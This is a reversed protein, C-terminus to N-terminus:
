EPNSRHGYFGHVNSNDAVVLQFREGVSEWFPPAQRQGVALGDAANQPAQGYRWLFPHFQDKKHVSAHGTRFGTQDVAVGQHEKGGYCASSRRRLVHAADSGPSTPSWTATTPRSTDATFSRRGGSRMRCSWSKSLRPFIRRQWRRCCIKSSKASTILRKERPIETPLIDVAMIVPGDGAVGDVVSQQEPDYVYVLNGPDTTRVTCQVSGNPDCSIDGIVKLRQRRGTTWMRRCDELTLLRPYRDDWYVCNVWVGLRELHRGFVAAYRQKGHRLYDELSFPTVGDGAEFCDAEKFVVKYLRRAEDPPLLVLDAPSISEHPLLDFIEQAGSSVNGYGTFGVVLPILERPLGQQRIEAAAARIDSRAAELNTYRIAQRIRAFPSSIGEWALRRGLAWLTNVMGALGAHSGFFILRRNQEDVVREYDILTAGLDMLRRLMPMNYSQGKIVHAFFLYVKKAELREPPIEKIGVILGCDSLRSAVPIGAAAFEADAIARQPASQVVIDLGRRRLEAIDRPVLPV